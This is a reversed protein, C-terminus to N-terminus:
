SARAHHFLRAVQARPQPFEATGSHVFAIAEAAVASAQTSVAVDEAQTVAAVASAQSSVAVDKAPKGAAVVNAQTGVAAIEV